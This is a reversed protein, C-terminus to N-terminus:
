EGKTPQKLNFRKLLAEEFMYVARTGMHGTISVCVATWLPQVGSAECLYFTVVGVFAATTLEGVLEIINFPKAKGARVKTIFSVFGGWTALGVVWLNTLLSYTTPDKGDLM